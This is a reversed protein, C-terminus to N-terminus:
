VISNDITFKVINENIFLFILSIIFFFVSFVSKYLRNKEYKQM